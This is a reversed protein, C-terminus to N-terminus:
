ARSLLSVSPLRARKLTILNADAHCQSRRATAFRAGEFPSRATSRGRLGMDGCGSRRIIAQFHLHLHLYPFCLVKYRQQKRCSQVCVRREMIGYAVWSCGSGSGAGGFVEM